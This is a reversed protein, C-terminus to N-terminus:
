KTEAAEAAGAGKLAYVVQVQTTLSVEGPSAPTGGGSDRLAMSAMMPVPQPMGGGMPESISIVGALSVGQLKALAEAKSRANAAAKERAKAELADPIDLGFQVGWINNAGAAMAADLVVGVKALDRIKVDVTNSVRYVEALRRHPYGMSPAQPSDMPPMPPLATPPPPAPTGKPTGKPARGAPQPPPEPMPMPMPMPMGYDPQQDRNVSFNSTQIDKDAIGTRKLAALIQNMRAAAQSAADAVTPAVVEVGLSARALDPKASAEGEGLVTITHFQADAARSSLVTVQPACGVLVPAATLLLGALSLRSVRKSLRLSSLASFSSSLIDM